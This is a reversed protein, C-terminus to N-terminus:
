APVGLTTLYIVAEAEPIGLVQNVLDDFFGGIGSVGLGLRIAALNLRQGLHGADLHLYRYARDGYKSIAQQLDATQFVIASANRGLDQGLCLYHLEKRFNKFRIQRLEQAKPAYYYCGEELGSVGSVAIFTEILELAFYDPFPDLGQALYAEPQYTFNLLAILQELTIEAGSYARTSRRELITNELESFNEGWDIFKTSATSIKTCFPFNYKDELYYTESSPETPPQFSDIKTAQHLYGLLEGDALSPYDTDTNSPLSHYYSLEPRSDYDLLDILPIVAIAGEEAEDLYLLKNIATDNFGGLFFTQYSNIAASLEVNGLLHGTDLCIRRYARDEYRWASRYFVATSVLAMEAEVLIENDFCAAQLDEWVRDQWFHILSHSQVQYNYLGARLWPTGRSILYIEAPYLGGASPAARLYIPEGYITTVQATLGYSCLLLLSLRLWKDSDPTEVAEQKASLYPKLDIVQGIKYEKFPQPQNAWDLSKGKQAITEPAYKTRQHYHTAISEPFQSM